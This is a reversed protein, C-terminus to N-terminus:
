QKPLSERQAILDRYKKIGAEITPDDPYLVRLKEWIGIAKEYAKLNEYTELLVRYPNYYSEVDQPNRELSALAQKEINDRAGADLYLGAIEFLLGTDIGLNRYPLKENMEDLVVIAESNKEYNLYYVALRVFANRYNQTMRRHNNDFFIDPNNLGRFKFGPMYDKSYGPNEVLANSLVEENVFEFGATRKEPVLRFAMGEMKLYEGLGIRSDESCTVAFYIPREWKNAEIIEKVMLDQVRVARVDGFTLTNPMNWTISGSSLTTTDVINYTQIVETYESDNRMKPTPVSINRPEWQIPRLQDIQADSMRLRVTGVNYPDINKLQKIYWETNLLSLNVIKIDRRVGEVDQLYWLPFTDNDGNTYLIANPKCSQLINYSYDWPVWNISRDHTFYNAQIMRLPIFIIALGLVGALVYKQISNNKVKEQVLDFLGRVGFAIWIGYVFFAGVYFYDRERPQPQQQNQYFATLYGLLIFMVMFISAM